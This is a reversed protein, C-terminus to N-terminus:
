GYQCVRERCSASGIEQVAHDQGRREARDRRRQRGASPQLEPERVAAQRWLGQQPEEGRDGDQWAARAGTHPDTRQRPSPLDSSCVDSSWDSIRLEYTTKLKFFVFLLVCVIVSVM